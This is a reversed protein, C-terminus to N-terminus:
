TVYLFTLKSLGLEDTAYKLDKFKMLEAYFLIDM